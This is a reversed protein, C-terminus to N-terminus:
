VIEAGSINITLGAASGMSVIFDGVDLVQEGHWQLMGNAPINVNPVLMNSASASGGSAVLYVTASKITATTNCIDITKLLAKRGAPVTYLTATTPSATMAAQAFKTATVVSM